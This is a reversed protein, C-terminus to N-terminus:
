VLFTLQRCSQGCQKRRFVIYAALFTCIISLSFPKGKKLIRTPAENVGWFSATQQQTYGYYTRLLYLNEYIRQRLEEESLM